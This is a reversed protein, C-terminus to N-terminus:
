PAVERGANPSSEVFSNLSEGTYRTRGGAGGLKIFPLAREGTSAWKALTSPKCGLFEAAEKRSLLKDPPLYEKASTLHTKRKPTM